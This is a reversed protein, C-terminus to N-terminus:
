SGSAPSKAAAAAAKKAAAEAKAKAAEKQQNLKLLIDLRLAATDDDSFGLASVRDDFDTLDFIGVEFLHEIQALTLSRHPVRRLYQARALIIEKEGDLLPLADLLSRAEVEDINGFKLADIVASVLSDTHSDEREREYATIVAGADLESYGMAQIQQIATERPIEKWRYARLLDAVPAKKQHLRILAAIKDDSYGLRALSDHVLSPPMQEQQFPNVLDAVTFQTPRFKLNLFWQYHEAIMTQILPRMVLRHLRGLGLNKAVEEPIERIEDIHGIPIMGGLTAIIGTATGFNILLGSFREAAKVRDAPELTGKGAFETVLLDHFISGLREARAIHDSFNNGGPIDASALEAGMLEGLIVVSIEAFQQDLGKRMSDIIGLAFRALPPVFVQLVPLVINKAMLLVAIPAAILAALAATATDGLNFKRISCTIDRFYQDFHERPFDTPDDPCAIEQTTSTLAPGVIPPEGSLDPPPVDEGSLLPNNVDGM